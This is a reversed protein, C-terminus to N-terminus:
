RSLLSIITISYPAMYHKVIAAQIDM